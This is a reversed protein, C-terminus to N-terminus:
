KNFIGNQRRLSSAYKFLQKNCIFVKSVGNLVSVELVKKTPNIIFNCKNIFTFLREKTIKIKNKTPFTVPYFNIIYKDENVLYLNTFHHKFLPNGLTPMFVSNIWHPLEKRTFLFFERGELLNSILWINNVYDIWQKEEGIYVKKAGCVKCLYNEEDWIHKCNLQDKNFAIIDPIRFQNSWLDIFIRGSLGNQNILKVSNIVSKDIIIESM